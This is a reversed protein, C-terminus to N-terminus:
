LSPATSRQLEKEIISLVQPLQWYASHTWLGSSVLHAVPLDIPASGDHMRFVTAAIFAFVDMPEWLNTWVGLSRPLQVLHAGNFPMLQGGRPDCVHFLPSQSGLTILSSTWLPQQATAMDVAIVGGLSHGVVRVPHEPDRGLEPDVEGVITWVREHIQEQKRQYVLVDGLFRTMGPGQETRLYTNVRGAAVGISAGVVRDLDALRRKVYARIDVERVEQGAVLGAVEPDALPSAVASGIQELLLPDSVQCLWLTSEWYEAIAGKVAAVQAADGDESVKAGGAPHAALGKAAGVMVFELRGQDLDDRVMAGGSAAPGSAVLLASAVAATEGRFTARRQGGDRVPYVGGAEARSREEFSPVTLDVWRDDAGLDGWYVAKMDWRHGTAERLGAVRDEFARRDRNGVGHIVFVPSTV